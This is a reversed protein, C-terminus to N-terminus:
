TSAAIEGGLAGSRRSRRQLPCVTAPSPSSPARAALHPPPQALSPPPNPPRLSPPRLSPPLSPCRRAVPVSACARALTHHTGLEETCLHLSTTSSPRLSCGCIHLLSVRQTRTFLIALANLPALRAAEPDRAHMCMLHWVRMLPDATAVCGTSHRCAGVLDICAGWCVWAVGLQKCPRVGLGMQGLNLSGVCICAPM